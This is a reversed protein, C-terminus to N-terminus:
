EFIAGYPDCIAEVEVGLLHSDQAPNRLVLREDQHTGKGVKGDVPAPRLFALGGANQLFDLRKGCVM